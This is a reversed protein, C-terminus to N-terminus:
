YTSKIESIVAAGTNLGERKGIDGRKVREDGHFNTERASVKLLNRLDRVDGGEL